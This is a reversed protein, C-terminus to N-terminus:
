VELIVFKEFAAAYASFFFERGILTPHRAHSKCVKGAEFYFHVLSFVKVNRTELNGCKEEWHAAFQLTQEQNM